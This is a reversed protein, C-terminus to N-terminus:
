NHQLLKYGKNPSLHELDLVTDGTATVVRWSDDGINLRHGSNYGLLYVIM